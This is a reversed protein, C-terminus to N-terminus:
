AAEARAARARNVASILAKLSASVVDQDLAVGAVPEGDLDLRVYAAAQADTGESLAHEAYDLVALRQGSFRVWADVFASIAGDGEGALTRVVGEEELRVEIRDHGNRSLRYGLLRVPEQDAVFRDLFLAHIEASGIEGGRRESEEQVAQALEVQLWRPLRLGYDRELVFAVGGKGSQSTVRIVARYDRGLDRPDIPLYAV